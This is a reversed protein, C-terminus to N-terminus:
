LAMSVGNVYWIMVEDSTNVANIRKYTIGSRYIHFCTQSFSIEWVQNM